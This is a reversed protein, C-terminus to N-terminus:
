RAQAEALVDLWLPGTVDDPWQKGAGSNMFKDFNMGENVAIDATFYCIGNFLTCGPECSTCNYLSNCQLCYEACQICRLDDAADRFYPARCNQMCEGSRTNPEQIRLTYGDFCSTCSVLYEAMCTKCYPNCTGCGSGDSLPYENRACNKICTGRWSLHYGESCKVCEQDLPGVCEDCHMGCSLCEYGYRFKTRPCPLFCGDVWLTYGEACQVCHWENNYDFLHCKICKDHCKYIQARAMRPGVISGDQLVAVFM